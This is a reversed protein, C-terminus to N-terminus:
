ITRTIVFEIRKNLSDIKTQKTANQLKDDGMEDSIGYLNIEFQDALSNSTFAKPQSTKVNSFTDNLIGIAKRVHTNTAGSYKINGISIEEKFYFTTEFDYIDPLVSETEININIIYDNISVNLVFRITDDDVFIVNTKNISFKAKNSTLSSTVDEDKVEVFSNNIIKSFEKETLSTVTYPVGVTLDGSNLAVLETKVRSYVDVIPSVDEEDMFDANRFKKFDVNFGLTKQNLSISSPDQQMADFVLDAIEGKNFQEIYKLPEYKISNSEEIYSIPLNSYTAVKNCFEESIYGKNKLYNYTSVKGTTCKQILLYYCNNSTDVVSVTDLVVRTKIFVNKLDFYFYHHDEEGAKYYISKIYKDNLKEASKSLLENVDEESLSFSFEGTTSTSSFGEIYTKNIIEATELDKANYENRNNDHLKVYIFIIGAIVLLLSSLASIIFLVKFRNKLSKKDVAGKNTIKRLM